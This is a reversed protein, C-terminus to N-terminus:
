PRLMERRVPTAGQDLMKQRAKRGDSPQVNVAQIADDLLAVQYGRALADCVTALVCYDTALGGVFLRRVGGARLREDLDTAQFGSYAEESPETWKSVIRTSPPLELVTPFAAGPTRRVCHVPWPGGQQGFSCHDPPHWDRTAYIPLGRSAFAALYGALAPIVLEGQPVALAGGPLFDNQVDIVVLADGPALEVAPPETRIGSKPQPM